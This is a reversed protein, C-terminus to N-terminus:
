KIEIYLYLIESLSFSHQFNIKINTYFNSSADLAFYDKVLLLIIKFKVVGLLGGQPALSNLESEPQLGSM